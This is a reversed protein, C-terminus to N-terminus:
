YEKYIGCGLFVDLGEVRRILTSKPMTFGTMPNEWLYDVWGGGAKAIEIFRRIFYKGNPDKLDLRNEGIHSHDAGHAFINGEFDSVFIYLDGDVFDGDFDNFAEIAKEMDHEKIYEMARDLMEEAEEPISTQAYAGFCVFLFILSLFVLYKM